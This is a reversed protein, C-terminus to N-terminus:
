LRGLWCSAFMIMEITHLHSTIFIFIGFVVHLVVIVTGDLPNVRKTALWGGRRSKEQQPRTSLPIKIRTMKSYNM